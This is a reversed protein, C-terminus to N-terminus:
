KKNIFKIIIYIVIIISLIFFYKLNFKFTIFIGFLTLLVFFYFVQLLSTEYQLNLPLDKSFKDDKKRDQQLKIFNYKSKEVSKKNHTKGM